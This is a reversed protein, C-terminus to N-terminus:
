YNLHNCAIPSVQNILGLLKRLAETAIASPDDCADDNDSSEDDKNDNGGEHTKVRQTPTICSLFHGAALHLSHEMCRHAYNLQRAAVRMRVSTINICV